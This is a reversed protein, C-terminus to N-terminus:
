RKSQKSSRCDFLILRKPNLLRPRRVEVIEKEFKAIHSHQELQQQQETSVREWKTTREEVLGPIKECERRIEPAVDPQRARQVIQQGETRAFRILQEVTQTAAQHEQVLQEMRSVDHRPLRDPQFKEQVRDIWEDM